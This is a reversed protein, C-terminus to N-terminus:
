CRRGRPPSPPPRSPPRRRDDRDVREIREVDPRAVQRRPRHREGVVGLGGPRLGEHHAREIVARGHRVSVEHRRQLRHRRDQALAPEDAEDLREAERDRRHAGLPLRHLCDVLRAAAVDVPQDVVGEVVVEGALRLEERLPGADDVDRADDIGVDGDVVHEVRVADQDVVGVPQLVHRLDACSTARPKSPGYLKSGNARSTCSSASGSAASRALMACKVSSSVSRDPAYPGTPLHPSRSAPVSHRLREVEDGDAPRRDVEVAVLDAPPQLVHPAERLVDPARRGVDGAARRPQPQPGRHDGADAVLVHPPEDDLLQRALADVGAPHLDIGLPQGRQHM